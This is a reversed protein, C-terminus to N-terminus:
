DGQWEKLSRVPLPDRGEKVRNQNIEKMNKVYNDYIAKSRLDLNEADQIQKTLTAVGGMKRKPLTKSKRM